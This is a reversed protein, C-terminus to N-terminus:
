KITLRISSKVPSQKAYKEFIDPQEAKIKKSDLKTSVTEAVYTISFFDNNISKVNNASMIEKLRDKFKEIKQEEDKQRLLIQQIEYAENQWIQPLDSLYLESQKEYEFGNKIADSIIQLGKSIIGQEFHLDVKKIEFNQSDFIFEKEVDLYHVLYLEFELGLSKAKNNGIVSHWHLQEFYDQETEDISKNTAKCEFWLLKKDTKVEFDIHNFIDFGYRESLEDHKTYPNSVANNYKSSLLQYISNEIFNGHETAVSTFQKQEDLGLMIAIRKKDSQSIVGNRGIKAVMKADSSGLGGVRTKIIEESM